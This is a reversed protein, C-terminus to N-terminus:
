SEDSECQMSQMIELTVGNSVPPLPKINEVVEDIEESSLITVKDEGDESKSSIAIIERSYMKLNGDIIEIEYETMSDIVIYVGLSEWFYKEELEVWFKIGELHSVTGEAIKKYCNESTGRLSSYEDGRYSFKYFKGDSTIVEYAENKAYEGEVSTKSNRTNDWVGAIAALGTPTNGASGSDSSNCASLLISTAVAM